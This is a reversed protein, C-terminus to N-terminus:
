RGHAQRRRASEQEGVKIGKSFRLNQGQGNIGKLFAASPFAARTAGSEFQAFFSSRIM